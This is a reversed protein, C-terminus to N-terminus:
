VVSKRDTPIVNIVEGDENDWNLWKTVFANAADIALKTSEDLNPKKLNSYQQYEDYTIFQM